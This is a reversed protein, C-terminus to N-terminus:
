VHIGWCHCVKKLLFCIWKRVQILNLAFFNIMQKLLDKIDMIEWGNFIWQDFLVIIAYKKSFFGIKVWIMWSDNEVKISIRVKAGQFVELFM